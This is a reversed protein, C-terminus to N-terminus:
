LYIHMYMYVCVSRFTYTDTYIHICMNMSPFFQIYTCVTELHRLWILQNRWQSVKISWSVWYLWGQNEFIECKCLDNLSKSNAYLLLAHSIICSLLPWENVHFFVILSCLNKTLFTVRFGFSEWNNKHAGGYLVWQFLDMGEKVLSM